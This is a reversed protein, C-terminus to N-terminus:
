KKNRKLDIISRLSLLGFVIEIILVSFNFRQIIGLLAFVAGTFNVYYFLLTTNDWKKTSIMYYAFLICVSGIISCLDNILLMINM